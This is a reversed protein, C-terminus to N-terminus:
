IWDLQDETKRYFIGLMRGNAMLTFMGIIAMILTGVIFHGDLLTSIFHQITYLLALMM